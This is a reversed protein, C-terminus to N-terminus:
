IIPVTRIRAAVSKLSSAGNILSLSFFFPQDSKFCCKEYPAIGVDGRRMDFIGDYVLPRVSDDAGVFSQKAVSEAYTYCQYFVVKCYDGFIGAFDHLFLNVKEFFYAITFM